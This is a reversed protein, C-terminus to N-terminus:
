KTFVVLYFNYKNLQKTIKVFFVELIPESENQVNIDPYPECNGSLHDNLLNLYELKEDFKYPM